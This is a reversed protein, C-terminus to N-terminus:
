GNKAAWRERAAKSRELLHAPVRKATESLGDDGGTDGSAAAPAEAPELDDFTPPEVGPLWYQYLDGVIEALGSADQGKALDVTVINAYVHVSAVKGTEILRRALVASPRDGRIATGASFRDHGQGSLTRNLEFRVMGPTGAAREVVGVSQGM